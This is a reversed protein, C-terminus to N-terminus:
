HLLNLLWVATCVENELDTKNGVVFLLAEDPFYSFAFPLWETRIRQFTKESDVAYVLIVAMANRFYSPPMRFRKDSAGTDTFLLTIDKDGDRYYLDFHEIGGTLSPCELFHGTKLRHFISSKGVGPEGLLITKVPIRRGHTAAREVPRYSTLAVATQVHGPDGILICAFPFFVDSNWGTYM